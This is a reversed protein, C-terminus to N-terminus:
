RDRDQTSLSSELHTIRTTWLNRNDVPQLPCSDILGSHLRFSRPKCEISVSLTADPTVFGDVVSMMVVLLGYYLGLWSLCFCVRM